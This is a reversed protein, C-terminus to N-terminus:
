PTVGGRLIELQEKSRVDLVRPGLFDIRRWDDLTLGGEGVWCSWAGIVQAGFGEPPTKPTWDTVSKLKRTTGDLWVNGLYRMAWQYEARTAATPRIIDVPGAVRVAHLIAHRMAHLQDGTLLVDEISQAPGRGYPEADIYTGDARLIAAEAQVRALAAAYYTPDYPHDAHVELDGPWAIWLMRGWYIRLGLARCRALANQVLPHAVADPKEQWTPLTFLVGTIGADAAYRLSEVVERDVQETNPLLWIYSVLLRDQPEPPSSRAAAVCCVLAIWVRAVRM